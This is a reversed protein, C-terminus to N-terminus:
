RTIPLTPASVDFASAGATAPAARLAQLVAVKLSAQSASGWTVTAGDRLGMQVTDQSAAQVTAVEARLPAPLANLVTLVAALTRENEGDIPVSVVPLGEPAAAAWGVQYGETDLLTFGAPDGSGPGTAAVPQPVAAVPERSVLAIALGRPWSRTVKAERVGPVDLVRDRLGIADLRPLPIGAVRDVVTSVDDIAVVTGAGTITVQGPDLAFVPSLLVLWATGLAAVVAAGALIAKKRVLRRRAALREAFRVASGTSVVSPRVLVGLARRGATYTTM